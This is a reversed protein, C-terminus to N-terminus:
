STWVAKGALKNVLAQAKEVSTFNFGALKGKHWIALGLGKKREDTTAKIEGNKTNWTNLTNM